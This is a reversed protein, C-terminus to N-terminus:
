AAGGGKVIRGGQIVIPIKKEDQLITIDELPNGDVVIVDALKGEELTGIENGMGVLNSNTKTASIIAMAPGMIAAKLELEMAKRNADAGYVDSGSAVNVGVAMAIEVSQPARGKAFNIKDLTTQPTGGEVTHKSKLEYVSLTPVLYMDAEKMLYASEEDLFNGHEISLIGAQVCNKIGEPVYVHAMVPKRVVRAEYVIAALEEVTFQPADLPDTPSAAGGGAMVKIHDAGTRLQERAAQRVQPVGDAIAPPPMLPHWRACPDSRDHRQRMDGHGGTQSIFSNAVFMRPGPILGREVALKFSWDCGGADRVTTYGYLLTDEILKAVSYAYVAGPHKNETDAALNEEPFAVHAHADILGPLITKCTADIVTAGRPASVQSAPGVAKIRDGEIVLTGPGYADRGTSDFITANELVLTDAM